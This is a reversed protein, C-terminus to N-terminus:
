MLTGTKTQLTTGAKTSIRRNTATTPSFFFGKYFIAQSMSFTVNPFLCTETYSCNCNASSIYNIYLIITQYFHIRSMNSIVAKLLNYYIVNCSSNKYM